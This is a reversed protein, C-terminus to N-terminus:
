IKGLNIYIYINNDEVYQLIDFTSLLYSCFINEM